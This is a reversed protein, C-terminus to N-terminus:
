DFDALPFEEFDSGKLHSVSRGALFAVLASEAKKYLESKGTNKFSIKVQGQKVGAIYTRLALAPYDGEKHALGTYFVEMFQQLREQNVNYYARFFVSKVLSSNGVLSKQEVSGFTRMAFDLGDSYKEELNLMAQPSRVGQTGGITNAANRKIEAAKTRPKLQSGFFANSLIALRITMQPKANGSLKAIQATTRQQGIDFVARSDSPIGRVTVIEVPKGFRIIARLRHQGDILHDSEDFTIPQGIKWEGRRMRNAYDAVRRDNIDRNNEQTLLYSKATEPSITEVTIRPFGDSRSNSSDNFQEIM